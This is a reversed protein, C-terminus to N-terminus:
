MEMMLKLFSAYRRPSIQGAMVARRVACGPEENHSCDLGFRCLGTFPRMEPFYEILEDAPVDWLGFERVGPTDVLAGGGSLPYLASVSTTHRGKGSFRSIEGVRQGLGPALANLLSTKGVGSKGLLVTTKDRLAAKLEAIGQGTMASTLLLQYGIREYESVEEMLDPAAGNGALDLKTICVLAPIGAAGAAALYRDLMNWKPPPNAAAFVPIVLDVNVAIIQEEPLAGPMPVASRRSLRNRRPLIETIWGGDSHDRFLVHDGVVAPSGSIRRADRVKGAHTYEFEKRLSPSLRCAISEGGTLLHYLEGTNRAVIGSRDFRDDPKTTNHITNM